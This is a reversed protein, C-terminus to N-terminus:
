VWRTAALAQANRKAQMSEAPDSATPESELRHRQRTARDGPNTRPASATVFTCDPVSSRLKSCASLIESSLTSRSMPAVRLDILVCADVLLQAFIKHPM